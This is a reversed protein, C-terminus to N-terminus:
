PSRDEIPIAELTEIYHRRWATIDNRRLLAIMEEWRERREGVPMDLARQLADAVGEYDHPNVILAASLERAAGAFRSLILTGPDQPDQSAVYEKAVLNMGDRLPTVLGVAATRLFGTLTRRNFGKNLYRVPMWDFEAFRGNISGAIHELRERLDTYKQVDTRSPPAIQMLTVRGRNAPYANMLHEFALLREPIGKSYDLRDVGIILARGVLSARLRETHRNHAAEAAQAEVTDTDLGIPFAAARFTRGYARFVGGPLAEGRAELRIYDKFAALDNDTQFGVLDYACLARLLTEHQPLTTLIEYAPFPTHLFFGIRNAIGARRLEEGMPILHYDHIWITDDSKLLPALKRAFLSNVRRYGAFHARAYHMLDVRYHFLPWLTGNAFGNYYDELDQTALDMTAYTIRGVRHIHPAEPPSAKAEGSWGFWIGGTARLAALMAVALGGAATKGETVRAVRNSIVILRSM